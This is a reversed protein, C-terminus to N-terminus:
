KKAEGGALNAAFRLLDDRKDAKMRNFYDPGRLGNKRASLLRRHAYPTNVIIRGSGPTTAPPMSEIMTGWDKPMYPEIVRMVEDDFKKQVEGTLGREKALTAIDKVKIKVGVNKSM